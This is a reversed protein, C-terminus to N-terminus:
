VVIWNSTDTILTLSQSPVITGTTSGDVTQASTTAFSINGTSSNKIIYPKIPATTANPLTAIKGPATMKVVDDSSQITYDVAKVQLTLPHAANDVYTKVAKQTALKTDSNAALNGDTDTAASIVTSTVVIPAVATYVTAAGAIKQWVTGSYLVSDGASFSISGSGLNQTGSVSVLYLWGATGVGDALAPTNTSANWAGKSSTGGAVATDVYGKTAGDTSTTPTALSTVKNNNMSIASTPAALDTVKNSRVISKVNATNSLTPNPYTGTLDGGATDTRIIHRGDTM